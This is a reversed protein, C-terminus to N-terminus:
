LARHLIYAASLLLGTLSHIAITQAQAPILEAFDSHHRLTTQIAKLALPFTLLALLTIPPQISFVVGVIVTVYILSLLIAYGIAARPKGLRVVLHRRGASADAEADPFENIYLILAVLIGVPLSAWIPEFSIQRMQVYYAGLVALPGLDVGVITEGAGTKAIHRTYLYATLVGFLGLCLIVIGTKIALYIGIFAACSFFGIAV